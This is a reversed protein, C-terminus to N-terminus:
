CSFLKHVSSFFQDKKKKKNYSTVQYLTLLFKNKQGQVNKYHVDPSIVEM